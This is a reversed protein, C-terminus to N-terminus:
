KILFYSTVYLVTEFDETYKLAIIYYLKINHLQIAFEM